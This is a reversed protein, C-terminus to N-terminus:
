NKAHTQIHIYPTTIKYPIEESKKKYPIRTSNLMYNKVNRILIFYSLDMIKKKNKNKPSFPCM